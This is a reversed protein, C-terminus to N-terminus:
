RALVVAQGLEAIRQVVALDQDSGATADAHVALADIDRLHEGALFEADLFDVVANPEDAEEVVIEAEDIEFLPGQM